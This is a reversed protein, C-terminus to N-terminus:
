STKVNSKTKSDNDKIKSEKSRKITGRYMRMDIGATGGMGGKMTGYGMGTEMGSDAGTAFNQGNHIRMSKDENMGGFESGPMAKEGSVGATTDVGGQNMGTAVHMDHNM